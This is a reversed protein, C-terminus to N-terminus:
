SRRVVSHEWLMLETKHLVKCESLDVHDYKRVVEDVAKCILRGRSADRFSLYGVIKGWVEPPLTINASAM